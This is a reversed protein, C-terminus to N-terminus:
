ACSSHGSPFSRFGDELIHSDTQTCIAATSLGWVPDQSNAIPICRAIVDAIWSVKLSLNLSRTCSPFPRGPRPRGVTIKTFQTIAGTLALGLVVILLPVKTLSTVALALFCPKCGLTSNHFDWWSQVTILNILIQLTFPAVFAIM